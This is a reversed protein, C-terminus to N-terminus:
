RLSHIRGTKKDILFRKLLKGDPRTVETQYYSKKDTIPGIRYSQWYRSNMHRNVLDRAKEKRLMGAEPNYGNRQMDPMRDKSYNGGDM